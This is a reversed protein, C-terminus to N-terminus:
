GFSNFVLTSIKCLYRKVADAAKEPVIVVFKTPPVRPVNPVTVFVLTVPSKVEKLILLRSIHLGGGLWPAVAVQEILQNLEFWDGLISCESVVTDVANGACKFDLGGGSEKADKQVDTIEPALKNVNTAGAPVIMSRTTSAMKFSSSADASVIATAVATIPV